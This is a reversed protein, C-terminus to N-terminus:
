DGNHYQAINHGRLILIYLQFMSPLKTLDDKDRIIRVTTAERQQESTTYQMECFDQMAYNYSSSVPSSMTWIAKQHESM